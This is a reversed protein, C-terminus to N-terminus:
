EGGGFVAVGRFLCPPSSHGVYVSQNPEGKGCNLVGRVEASPPGGVAALGRWFEASIGRYGPNRVLGRLEGDVILRGLECGFQFKNRSDDISWSRNTDMLVGREVQAILDSISGTGPELNINAMRDIPPRDWACARANAVGPLGSRAQSLRGGLPRELIGDRILYAREAPTGEDDAAYSALEGPVGPDFTVNLLPSGYQYRGFMEPTVFSTGAYNREDGLIRDLELPHGISEHIQLVMQSPTLVLDMTGTPCEPADLLAIAEEAVRRADERFGVLALRELGGQGAWDAGGGQRTQTQSGQNAVAVLGPSLYEFRQALEGGDATVLLQDVRRYGLWAASDVIREDIELAACAAALLGLKDALSLGRWPSTVPTQYEVRASSRPYLHGDFLGLRAHLRASELARGAATALGGPSLDSTAAYGLGGGAVLTLMAGSSLSLASPEAVGQRVALREHEEDVLRLTWYDVAPARATFRAAIERLSQM